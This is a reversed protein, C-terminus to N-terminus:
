FKRLEGTSISVVGECPNEVSYVIANLVNKIKVPYLRKATKSFPPIIMFLWYLPLILYPWYHGKGLVYWPKIIVANMGGSRKIMEEGQKRVSIFEKMVPAPEAVSLYIFQKIGAETAAKVSEQISVLDIENFEKEKGPAPHSVGVLHIFIDCGKVNEKFSNSDLANGYIINCGDPLKNESGKRVLANVEFGKAILLPILGSGIYGTGGTIFISRPKM